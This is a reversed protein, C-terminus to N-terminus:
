TEHRTALPPGQAQPGRWALLCSVLRSRQGQQCSGLLHGLRKRYLYTVWPVEKAGSSNGPFWQPQVPQCDPVVIMPCVILRHKNKKTKM